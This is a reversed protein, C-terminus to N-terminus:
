KQAGFLLNAFMGLDMLCLIRRKAHPTSGIANKDTSAFIKLISIGPINIKKTQIIPIGQAM